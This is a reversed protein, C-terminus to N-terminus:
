RGMVRKHERLLARRTARPLVRWKEPDVPMDAPPPAPEAPTVANLHLRRADQTPDDGLERVVDALQRRRVLGHLPNGAVGYRFLQTEDILVVLRPNYKGREHTASM